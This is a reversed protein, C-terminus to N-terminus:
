FGVSVVVGNDPSYRTGARWTGARRHFRTGTAWKWFPKQGITSPLRPLSWGSPKTRGAREGRAASGISSARNHLAGSSSAPCPVLTAPRADHVKHTSIEPKESARRDWLDNNTTHGPTPARRLSM